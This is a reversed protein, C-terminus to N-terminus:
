CSKARSIIQDLSKGLWMCKFVHAFPQDESCNWSMCISTWAFVSFAHWSLEHKWFINLINGLETKFELIDYVQRLIVNTFELTVYVHQSIDTKFHRLSTTFYRAWIGMHWKTHPPPCKSIYLWVYPWFLWAFKFCNTLSRLESLIYSTGRQSLM